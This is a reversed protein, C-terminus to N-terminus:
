SEKEIEKKVLWFIIVGLKKPLSCKVINSLAKVTDNDITYKSTKTRKFLSNEKNLTKDHHTYVDACLYAIIYTIYM